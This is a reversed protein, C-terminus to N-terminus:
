KGAGLDNDVCLLMAPQYTTRHVYWWRDIKALMFELQRADATLGYEIKSGQIKRTVFGVYELELLRESLTTSSIGALDKKIEHFGVSEASGVIKLIPLTWRKGLITWIDVENDSM